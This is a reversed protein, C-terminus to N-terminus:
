EWGTKWTSGRKRDAYIEEILGDTNMDKWDGAAELLASRKKRMERTERLAYRIAAGLSGNYLGKLHEDKELEKSLEKADTYAEQSIKVTKLM